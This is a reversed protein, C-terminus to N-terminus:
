VLCDMKGFTHSYPLPYILEMKCFVFNRCSFHEWMNGMHSCSHGGKTHTCTYKLNLYFAQIKVSSHSRIFTSGQTFLVVSLICCMQIWAARGVSSIRSAAGWGRSWRLGGSVQKREGCIPKTQDQILVLPIM